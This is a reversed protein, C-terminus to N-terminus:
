KGAVTGALVEIRVGHHHRQPGQTNIQESRAVGGQLVEHGFYRRGDYCVQQAVAVGTGLVMGLESGLGPRAVDGLQRSRMM